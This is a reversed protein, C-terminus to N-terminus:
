PTRDNIPCAMGCEYPAGDRGAEFPGCSGEPGLTLEYRRALERWISRLLRGLLRYFSLPSEAELNSAFALVWEGIHDSGFSRLAARAIEAAETDGRGQADVTMVILLATFELEAIIHDPKEGSGPMPRFGFAEYFGSIDALILGKDRRVFATENPPCRLGGEFLRSHEDSWDPSSLKAAEGIVDRMLAPDEGSRRELRLLRDLQDVAGPDIEEIGGDICRRGLLRAILLLADAEALSEVCGPDAERGDM